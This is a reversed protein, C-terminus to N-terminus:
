DGEPRCDTARVDNLGGDLTLLVWRAGQYLLPTNEPSHGQRVLWGHELAEARHSEVHRHCPECIAVGNAPTNTDARRSGGAGRPRRHHLQQVPRLCCRECLNNARDCIIKRVAPSFGTLSEGCRHHHQVTAGAPCRVRRVHSSALGGYRHIRDGGGTRRSEWLVAQVGRGTAGRGRQLQGGRPIRLVVCGQAQLLEAQTGDGRRLQPVRM